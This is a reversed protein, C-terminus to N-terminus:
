ANTSPDIGWARREGAMYDPIDGTELANVLWKAKQLLLVDNHRQAVEIASTALAIAEDKGGHWRIQNALNFAANIAGLEDGAAAYIDKASLLLAKCEALFKAAGDEVNLLKHTQALQGVSTGIIVLVGAASEYDDCQNILNLATSAENRWDEELRRLRTWQQQAQEIPTAVFSLLIDTLASFHAEMFCTCFDWVLMAAIQAHFIAEPGPLNCKKARDVGRRGFSLLEERNDDAPAFWRFLCLIVNIELIPDTTGYAIAKLEAKAEQSPVQYMLQEFRHNGAEDTVTATKAATAKGAPQKKANAMLEQRLQNIQDALDVHHLHPFGQLLHKRRYLENALFTSEQQTARIGLQEGYARMSSIVSDGLKRPTIFTWTEIEYKKAHKLEAAKDLDSRIKKVYGADTKQEPKIPCNIALMRRESSVYGDNGNDSRSGDIVQFHDGYIDTFIANCLRTFEQPNTMQAILEDLSM